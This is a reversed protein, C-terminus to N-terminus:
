PPATRKRSPWPLHHGETFAGFFREARGAAMQAGRGVERAIRKPAKVGPPGEPTDSSVASMLELRTSTLYYDARYPNGMGMFVVISLRQPTSDPLRAAEYSAWVVQAAM